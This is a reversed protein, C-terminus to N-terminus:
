GDYVFEIGPGNSERIKQGFCRELPPIIEEIIYGHREPLMRIHLEQNINEEQLLKIFENMAIVM